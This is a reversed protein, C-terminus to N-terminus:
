LGLERARIRAEAIWEDYLENELVEDIVGNVFAILQFEGSRAAIRDGQYAPQLLFEIDPLIMLGSDPNNALYEMAVEADMAGADVDGRVISGYVDQVQPLRRFEKYVFINAAMMAEQLSGQQAALIKGAMDDVTTISEADSERIMIVTKPADSFYYGKSMTVTAARAPTFSLASIALDCEDNAVAPLVDTFEMEVIQLDVGMRDAILRALEMDAGRYRDQGDFAPDIFEQPPFYPETAVRLVGREQIRALVGSADAPIGGSIDMSGEVYNWENVTYVAEECIGSVPGGALCLVAAAILIALAPKMRPKKM